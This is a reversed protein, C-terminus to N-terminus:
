LSRLWDILDELKQVLTDFWDPKSPDPTPTPAPVSLPLPVTVDGDESLLQQLTSWSMCARGRMGWSSGWSNTLWVLQNEVDLEDLVVEHGGRIYSQSGIYILGDNTPVDFSSYWNCGLLVPGNQLALLATQLDFAHQYGSILGAQKMAKAVSLGDSGTDDPPYSGEYDDILTAASYLHVAQAEDYDAQSALQGPRNVNHTPIEELIPSTGAAGEAANGTCSGLDGQDLVPILRNHRVSTLGALNAATTTYPYRKSRPDHNVHRGLRKRTIIVEPIQVRYNAM